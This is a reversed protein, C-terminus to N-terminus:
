FKELDVESHFILRFHDIEIHIHESPNNKIHVKDFTIKCCSTLHQIIIFLYIFLVGLM